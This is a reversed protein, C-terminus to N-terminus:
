IQVKHDCLIWKNFNKLPSPLPSICVGHFCFFNENVSMKGKFSPRVLTSIM